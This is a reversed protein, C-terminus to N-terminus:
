YIWEGNCAGLENGDEDTVVCEDETSTDEPAPNPEDFQNEEFTEPADEEVPAGETEPEPAVHREVKPAPEPTVPELGGTFGGFLLTLLVAFLDM